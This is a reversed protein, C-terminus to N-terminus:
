KSATMHIAGLYTTALRYWLAGENDSTPSRVKDVVKHPSGSATLQEQVCWLCVFLILLVGYILLLFTLAAINVSHIM